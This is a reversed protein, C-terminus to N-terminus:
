RLGSASGLCLCGNQGGFGFSNSLATDSAGLERAENPVYDLDCKRDRVLQNITPLVIGEQMGRFTLVAEIAGAAGITHGIMSKNSSVPVEYARDGLLRKLAMTEVPDNTPTSTGHANVYEITVRRWAPTARPGTRMARLAGEGEPHVDTIRYADSSDGYGLVEGLIPRGRRRAGELTELM